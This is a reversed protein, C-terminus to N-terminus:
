KYLYTTCGWISIVQKHTVINISAVVWNLSDSEQDCKFYSVSISQSYQSSIM